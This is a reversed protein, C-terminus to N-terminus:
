DPNGHFRRVTEEWGTPLPLRTAGYTLPWLSTDDGQRFLDPECGYSSYFDTEIKHHSRFCLHGDPLRDTRVDRKEPYSLEVSLKASQFVTNQTTSIIM